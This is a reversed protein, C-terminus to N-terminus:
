ALYLRFCNGKGAEHVVRLAACCRSAIAELASDAEVPQAACGVARIELLIRGESLTEDGPPPGGLAGALIRITGGSPLADRARVVLSTLAQEIERRDASVSGIGPGTEIQLEVDEGALSELLARMGALVEGLDVEAPREARRGLELLGKAVSGAQQVVQRLHEAHRRRPDTGDLSEILLESYNRLSSLLGDFTQIATHALRGTSESRRRRRVEERLSRGESVDVFLHERRSEGPKEAPIVWACELVWATREASPRLCSEAHALSGESRLRAETASRDSVFRTRWDGPKALAESIGAYGFISAFAENCELLGGDPGTAAFGVLGCAGLRAHASEVQGLRQQLRRREERHQRELAQERAEAESIFQELMAREELHQDRLMQLQDEAEERCRDVAKRLLQQYSRSGQEILKRYRAVTEALLHKLDDRDSTRREFEERSKEWLEQAAAFRGATERERAEAALLVKELSERAAREAELQLRSEEGAPSSEAPAGARAVEERLRAELEGRQEELEKRRSDLEERVAALRSLLSRHEELLRAQQGESERLSEELELRERDRAAHLEALEQRAAQLERRAEALATREVGLEERANQVAEGLGAARQREERGADAEAQMVELRDLAAGLAREFEALRECAARGESEEASCDRLTGLLQPTSESERRFAVGTLEVRTSSGDLGRCDFRVSGKDGACVEEIFGWLSAQQEPSVFSCINSGVVQGNREAGMAALGARNVALITGDGALVVIGAPLSDVLLRLRGESSALAKRDRELNRERVAIEVVAGLRFAYDGAKAVCAAAGLRLAHGSEGSIQPGTLIVAPVEPDRLRVEKLVELFHGRSSSQDIIVADCALPGYLRMDPGCLTGDESRVAVEVYAQPMGDSLRRAESRDGVYLVRLPRLRRDAEARRREVAELIIEPLRPISERRKRVYDDAGAALAELPPSADGEALMVVLPISPKETRARSIFELSPGAPLLPDVLVADYDGAQLRELGERSDACHDFKLGPLLRSLENEVFRADASRGTLYLVDM